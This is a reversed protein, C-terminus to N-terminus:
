ISCILNTTIITDCTPGSVTDIYPGGGNVVSGDPLMYNDGDCINANVTRTFLPDVTLNTTIITDCGPGSVTDVYPGGGNVVSGDPLM